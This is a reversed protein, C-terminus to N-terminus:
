LEDRRPGQDKLFSGNEDNGCYGCTQVCKERMFVPNEKCQKQMDWWKCHGSMDLCWRNPIDIVVSGDPRIPAADESDGEVGIKWSGLSSGTTMKWRGPSGDWKDVRADRIYFEHSLMSYVTASEGAAIEMKFDARTEFIWYLEVPHEHRNNFVVKVEIMRWMWTEFDTRVKTSYRRFMGGGAQNRDGLAQSEITDGLWRLGEDPLKAGRKGFVFVPSEMDDGGDIGFFRSLDNSRHYRISVTQLLDEWWISQPSMGAFPYPYVIEDTVLEELRPTFFVMLLNRELRGEDDLMITQLQELSVVHLVRDQAQKVEPKDKLRYPRRQFGHQFHARPDSRRGGRRGGNGGGGSDDGTADYRRRSNVDSLVEFAHAVKRFKESAEEERGPNKDPHSEKAKSRYAAKIERPSAKRSVGLVAYLNESAAAIQILLILVTPLLVRRYLQLRMAERRDQGGNARTRTRALACTRWSELLASHTM